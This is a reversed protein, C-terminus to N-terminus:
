FFLHLAKSVAFVKCCGGSMTVVCCQMAKWPQLKWVKQMQICSRFSLWSVAAHLVNKKSVPPRFSKKPGSDCGRNARVEM